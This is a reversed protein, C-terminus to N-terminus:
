CADWHWSVGGVQPQGLVPGLPCAGCWESTVPLLLVALTDEPEPYTEWQYCSNQGQDETRAKM